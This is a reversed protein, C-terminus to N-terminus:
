LVRSSCLVASPVCRETPRSPVMFTGATAAWVASGPNARCFSHIGTLFRHQYALYTIGQYDEQAVVRARGLVGGRAQRELVWAEVVDRFPGSVTIVLEQAIRASDLQELEALARQLEVDWGAGLAMLHLFGALHAERECSESRRESLDLQWTRAMERRRVHPVTCLPPIQHDQAAELQMEECPEVERGPGRLGSRGRAACGGGDESGDANESSLPAHQECGVWVFTPQAVDKIITQGEPGEIGASLAVQRCPGGAKVQVQVGRELEETTEYRGVVLDEALLVLVAEDPVAIGEVRAQVQVDIWESEPECGWGEDWEGDGGADARGAGELVTGNRPELIEIQVPRSGSVVLLTSPQSVSFLPNGISDLLITSVVHQGTSLADVPMSMGVAGDDPVFAQDFLEDDLLFGVTLTGSEVTGDKTELGANAHRYVTAQPGAVTDASQCSLAM